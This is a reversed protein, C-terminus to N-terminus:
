IKINQINVLCDYRIANGSLSYSPAVGALYEGKVPRKIIIKKPQAEIAAKLMEDGNECPPEVTHLLQFKRKALASKKKSPFMPDLYIIDYQGRVTKMAEISNEERLEMRSVTDSLDSDAEARKLADRLMAAILADYEYMTVTNGAAAMIFSDDGLGATADLVTYPGDSNKFRVAKLLMETCINKRDTRRKLKAFDGTIKMGDCYLGLGDASLELHDESEDHESLDTLVPIKLKGATEEAESMKGPDKLLLYM